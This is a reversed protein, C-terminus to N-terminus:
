CMHCEGCIFKIHSPFRLHKGKASEGGGGGSASAGGGGDGGGAAAAGGGGHGVLQATGDDAYVMDGSGDDGYGFDEGYGEEGEDEVSAEAYAGMGHDDHDEPVEESSDEIVVARGGVGDASAAAAANSHRRPPAASSSSSSAPESKIPDLDAQESLHQHQLRSSAPSSRSQSANPNLYRPNLNPRKSPHPSSSSSSSPAAPRKAGSSVGGGLKPPPPKEDQVHHGDAEGGEHGQTLGKIKLEEAVALFADLDEQAVNVEGHYMFDLVNRLDQGTVGRLYIVPHVLAALLGAGPGAARAQKALVSAFFPSCSSLIVRHARIVEDEDEVALSVDFFSSSPAEAQARLAKFSDSFHTGFDEWRLCLLERQSSGM